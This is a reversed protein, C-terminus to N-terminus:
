ELNPYVDEAIAAQGRRYNVMSPSPITQKPTASTVQEKLFRFDDAFIPERLGVRERVRLAAPTFEIKGAENRFEVTMDDQAKEIGGLQYIFDMHWSARRFEGDTASRLGVEEQMRVVERIAEDEVGRLEESSIRGGAFDERAKLLEPPRLLSGVHDARFPPTTRILPSM